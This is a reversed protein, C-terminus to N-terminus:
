CSGLARVYRRVSGRQGKYDREELYRCIEPWHPRIAASMSWGSQDADPYHVGSPEPRLRKRPPDVVIIDAHIHDRQGYAQTAASRRSKRVYFEANHIGNIEANSPM